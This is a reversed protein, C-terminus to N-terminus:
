RFPLAKGTQPTIFCANDGLAYVKAYGSVQLFENVKVRGREDKEAPLEAVLPNAVVGTVWVMTRTFITRKGTIEITKESVTTVRSDLLVEVGQSKLYALATAALREEMEEMIRSGEEILIIKILAPNIRRYGKVLSGRVFDDIEAALQVGTYGGGVVVFTLLHSQEDTRPEVDAQEFMRIIHNRLVLGDFLAKLEFVNNEFSPLARTDTISGLALVLYHYDLIGSDTAIKKGQLDISRIERQHFNFRPRRKLRRIPYAIHRTEVAGCAVKHLLPTFLFFNENSVLVVAYNKDRKMFKQMHLATYFGGFGCGLILINKKQESELDSAVCTFTEEPRHLLLRIKQVFMAWGFRVLAMPNLTMAMIRTYPDSGTFIGWVVQNFPRRTPPRSWESAVLRSHALYFTESNKTHYHIDFLLHGRRNDRHIIRGLPGYHDAFAKRSIGKHVATDAACRATRLASGIGDKYLRSVYADGIAVFGDAYPNEAPGVNIKPKCGCVLKYDPPLFCRVLENNLFERLDPVTGKTGLLSVNICEGKPVLMGFMLPTKPFLFVHGVSGTIKEVAETGVHIEAAVMSQIKPPVYDWGAIPFRKATVGVALVILDYPANEGGVALSLRPSVEISDVIGHVVNAGRDQARGLLFDDFSIGEGVSIDAPGGGRFVSFIQTEPGLNPIDMIGFPSHVRYASIRTQIISEPLELQLETLDHLLQSSLVGACHNCGPPGRRTFSKREYIDIEPCIGLERAYKSLYLSFFSGAPGGGVIAVRSGDRLKLPQNQMAQGM